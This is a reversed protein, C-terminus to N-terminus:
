DIADFEEPTPLRNNQAIFRFVRASRTETREMTDRDVRYLGFKPDFGETWELNDTLSWYTYGFVPYGEEVLRRVWAVHDVIMRPRRTDDSDAMGNEAIMLPLGPYRVSLQQCLRYIGEPYIEWNMDTRENGPGPLRLVFGVARPSFRVVERFYYNVGLWDLTGKWKEESRKVAPSGFINISLNGTFLADLMNENFFGNLQNRAFNDFFNGGNEFLAFFYIMGVRPSSVGQPCLGTKKIIRYAEAHADILRQYVRIGEAQDVKLPPVDGIFWGRIAYIQADIMTSWYDIRSGFRRACEGVYAEWRAFVDDNLWGGKGTAWAPLTFHWLNVFVTFGRERMADIMASYHAWAEEDWVGEEPEVRSWEIGIRHANQGDNRALDFDSEYRNWFDVCRGSVNGDRFPHTAGKEWEYWDAHINGGEHQYADEGTSWLFGEPFDLGSPEPPRALRPASVLRPLFYLAAFLLILAALAILAIM